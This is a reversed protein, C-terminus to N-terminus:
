VSRGQYQSRTPRTFDSTAYSNTHANTHTHASDPQGIERVHVRPWPNRRMSPCPLPAPFPNPTPSVFSSNPRGSWFQLYMSHHTHTNITGNKLTHTHTHTHTHTKIAGNRKREKTYTHTNNSTMDTNTRHSNNSTLDIDTWHSDKMTM